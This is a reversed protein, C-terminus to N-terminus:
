IREVVVRWQQEHVRGRDEEETDSFGAPVLKRLKLGHPLLTARLAAPNEIFFDVAARLWGAAEPGTQEDARTRLRMILVGQRLRPHPSEGGDFAAELYPRELTGTDHETALAVQEPLGDPRAATLIAIIAATITSDIDSM